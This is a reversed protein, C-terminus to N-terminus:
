SEGGPGQDPITEAVTAQRMEPLQRWLGSSPEYGRPFSILEAWVCMRCMDKVVLLHIWFPSLALLLLSSLAHDLVCVYDIM